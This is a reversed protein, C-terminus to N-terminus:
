GKFIVTTRGYYTQSTLINTTKRKKKRIFWDRGYFNPDFGGYTPHIKLITACTMVVIGSVGVLSELGTKLNIGCTNRHRRRFNRGLIAVIRNLM